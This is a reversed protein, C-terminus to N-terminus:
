KTDQKIKLFDIAKTLIELDNQKNTFKEHALIESLPFLKLDCSISYIYFNQFTIEKNM